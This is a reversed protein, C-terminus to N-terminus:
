YIFYDCVRSARDEAATTRTELRSIKELLEIRELELAEGKNSTMEYASKYRSLSSSLDDIQKAQSQEIQEIKKKMSIEASQQISREVSKKHQAISQRAKFLKDLTKKKFAQFSRRFKTFRADLFTSIEIFAKEEFSKIEALVSQPVDIPTAESDISYTDTTSHQIDDIALQFKEKISQFYYLFEKEILEQESTSIDLSEDNTIDIIYSDLLPEIDFKNKESM